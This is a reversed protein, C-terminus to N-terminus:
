MRLGCRSPSTTCAAPSGSWRIASADLWTHTITQPPSHTPSGTPFSVVLAV